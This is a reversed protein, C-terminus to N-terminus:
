FILSVSLRLSCPLPRYSMYRSSSAIWGGWAVLKLPGVCRVQLICHKWAETAVSLSEAKFLCRRVIIGFSNSLGGYVVSDIVSKVVLELVARGSHVGEPPSPLLLNLRNLWLSDLLGVSLAGLCGAQLAQALAQMVSSPEHESLVDTAAEEEEDETGLSILITQVDEDGEEEWDGGGCLWDRTICVAVLDSVFFFAFGAPMNTLIQLAQARSFPWSEDGDLGHTYVTIMTLGLVVSLLLLGRLVGQVAAWLTGKREGDLAREDGDEAAGWIQRPSGDKQNFGSAAATLLPSPPESEVREDADRTQARAFAASSFLSNLSAPAKRKFGPLLEGTSKSPPLLSDVESALEESDDAPTRTETSEVSIALQYISENLAPVIYLKRSSHCCSPGLPLQFVSSPPVQRTM